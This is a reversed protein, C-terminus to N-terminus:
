ARANASACWQQWVQRYVHEVAAAIGKGDRLPSNTMMGRLSCKLDRLREKDAALRTAITIYGDKTDAVLDTLKLANAISAGVRGAHRQGALTVVPVGMWLADCTTTTGNYPFTDLAIDVSNYMSFHDVMTSTRGLIRLRESGIGHESFLTKYRERTAEHDFGRSKLILRSDSTTRLIESWLAVMDDTMKIANNFSGFTVGNKADPRPPPMDPLPHYCLFCRPLRILTETHYSDTEAPDACDDTLRYDVAALGTTNPYGLYTIQIPAPKAAFVLLRNDGSHGALDVLIDIEDSRILNVVESISMTSIDRWNSLRRRLEESM